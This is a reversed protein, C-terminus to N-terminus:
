MVQAYLKVIDLTTASQELKSKLLRYISIDFSPTYRAEAAEYCDAESHVTDLYCWSEFLHWDTRNLNENYERIAIRGSNNSDHLKLAPWTKFYPWTKLKLVLLATKLRLDHQTINERGVCLGRCDKHQYAFCAGAAKGPELGLRKLCLGHRTSIERLTNAAERKSKFTGYLDHIDEMAVDDLLVLSLATDPADEVLRYACLTEKRHNLHNHTPLKQSVLKAELLQAGLEGATELWEVNKVEQALKLARTSRSNTAFHSQVRMRMNAAHGVYLALQHEGYFIYVGPETPVTDLIATDLGSPLSPSKMAKTVALTIEPATKEQHILQVFDWLVRADGLARHRADCVLNHRAIIADLGHKHHERYLARSFKVTCLVPPDFTMGLRQFENKLFGFDFRANHAVFLCGRMMEFVDDALEEFRPADQVMEDTIGIFSQIIAPIPVGPNVLSEWEYDIKGNTVKLIGIETIRNSVPNAGTTELDVFVISQSLM